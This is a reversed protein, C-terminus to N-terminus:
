WIIQTPLYWIWLMPCCLVNLTRIKTLLICSNPNNPNCSECWLGRNILGCRNCFTLMAVRIEREINTPSLFPLICKGNCHSVCDMVLRDISLHKSVLGAASYIDSEM